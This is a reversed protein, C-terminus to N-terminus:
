LGWHTLDMMGILSLTYGFIFYYLTIHCLVFCYLAICPLLRPCPMHIVLESIANLLLIDWAWHMGSSCTITAYYMGCLSWFQMYHPCPVHAMLEPVAHLSQMVCVDCARSSCTVLVHCMGVWAGPSCAILVHHMDQLSCPTPSMPDILSLTCHLIFYYSTICVLTFCYSTIASPLAYAEYARFNCKSFAHCIGWIGWVQMYHHCPM